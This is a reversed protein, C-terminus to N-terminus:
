LISRKFLLACLSCHFLEICKSCALSHFVGKQQRFFLLFGTCQIFESHASPYFNETHTSPIWLHCQGRLPRFHGTPYLVGIGAQGPLHLDMGPRFGAQKWWALPHPGAAACGRPVPVSDMEQGMEAALSAPATAHTTRAGRPCPACLPLSPGEGRLSGMVVCLCMCCIAPTRM